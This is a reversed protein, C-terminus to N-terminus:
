VKRFFYKHRGFPQIEEKNIWMKFVKHIWFKNFPAELMTVYMLNNIEKYKFCTNDRSVRQYDFKGKIYRNSLHKQLM